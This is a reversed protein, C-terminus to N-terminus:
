TKTTYSSYLAWKEYKSTHKNLIKQFISKDTLSGVLMRKQKLEVTLGLDESNSTNKLDFSAFWAIGVKSILPM